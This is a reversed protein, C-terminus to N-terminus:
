FGIGYFVLSYHLDQWFKDNNGVFIVGLNLFDSVFYFGGGHGDKINDDFQYRNSWGPWTEYMNAAYYYGILHVNFEMDILKMKFLTLRLSAGMKWMWPEQFLDRRNGILDEYDYLRLQYTGPPTFGGLTYKEYQFTEPSYYSGYFSPTLTMPTNQITWSVAGICKLRMRWWDLDWMKAKTDLDIKLGKEPFVFRDLNDVRIQANYHFEEWRHWDGPDDQMTSDFNILEVGLIVAGDQAFWPYIPLATKFCEEQYQRDYTLSDSIDSYRMTQWYASLDLQPFTLFPCWINQHCRQFGIEAKQGRPVEYTMKLPFNEAYNIYVSWGHWDRSRGETFINLGETKELSLAPFEWTHSAKKECAIILISDDQIDEVAITKLFYKRYLEKSRKLVYEYGYSIGEKNFENALTQATRQDREKENKGCRIVINSIKGQKRVQVTLKNENFEIRTVRPTIYGYTILCMEVMKKLETYYPIRNEERVYSRVITDIMGGATRNIEGDEFIINLNNIMSTDNKSWVADQEIITFTLDCLAMGCLIYPEIKAEAHSFNGLEYLRKLADCVDIKQIYSGEKHMIARYVDTNEECPRIREGNVSAQLSNIRYIVTDHQGGYLSNEIHVIQRKIECIEDLGAAYGKDIFNKLPEYSYDDGGTVDVDIKGDANDWSNWDHIDRAITMISNVVSIGLPGGLSPDEIILNRANRRKIPHVAIIYNYDYPQSDRVSVQMRNEPARTTDFDIFADVPLNDLVGGDVYPCGNIKMPEFVMPMSGSARTATSITGKRKLESDRTAMNVLMVSYPIPLSDYDFGAYYDYMLTRDAIANTFNQGIRLGAGPRYKVTPLGFRELKFDLDLGPERPKGRLREWIPSLNRPPQNAFIKLWEIEKLVMYELTDVPYGCVYLGGVISGMSTGAIAHIPINNEELARLVGIHAIGRGGGGALALGVKIKRPLATVPIWKTNHATSEEAWSTDEDLVRREWYYKLTDVASTGADALNRDFRLRIYIPEEQKGAICMIVPVIFFLVIKSM